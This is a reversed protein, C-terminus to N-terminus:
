KGVRIAEDLIRNGRNAFDEPPVQILLPGFFTRQRVALGQQVLSKELIGSDFRVEITKLYQRVFPHNFLQKLIEGPDVYIRGIRKMAEYAKLGIYVNKECELVKKGWISLCGIADKRYENVSPCKELCEILHEMLYRFEINRMSFALIVTNLVKLLMDRELIVIKLGQPPNGHLHFYSDRSIRETIFLTYTDVPQWGHTQRATTTHRAIQAGEQTWQNSGTKRTMEVVCNFGNAQVLCDATGGPSRRLPNLNGNWV